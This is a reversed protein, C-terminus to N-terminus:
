HCALRTAEHLDGITAAAIRAPEDEAAWFLQVLTSNRGVADGLRDCGDEGLHVRVVYQDVEPVGPGFGVDLDVLYRGPIELPLPVAAGHRGAARRDPGARDGGGGGAEAAAGDPQGPRRPDAGHRRPGVAARDARRAGGRHAARGCFSRAFDDYRRVVSLPLSLVVEDPLDDSPAGVAVRLEQSGRSGRPEQAIRACANGERLVLVTQEGAGLVEDASGRLGLAPAVAGTLRVPEPGTNVLAVEVSLSPDPGPVADLLPQGGVVLALRPGVPQPAPDGSPLLQALAVGALVAALLGGWGQLRRPVAPLYSPREGDDAPDAGVADQPRDARHASRRSPDTITVPPPEQVASPYAAAV